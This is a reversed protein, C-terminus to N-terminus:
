LTVRLKKGTDYASLRELYNPDLGPVVFHRAQDPNLYNSM